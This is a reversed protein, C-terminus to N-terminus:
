TQYGILVVHLIITICIKKLNKCLVHYFLINQILDRLIFYLETYGCYCNRFKRGGGGVMMHTHFVNVTNHVGFDGGCFGLEPKDTVNM